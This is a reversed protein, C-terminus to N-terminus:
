PDMPTWIFMGGIEPRIGTVDAPRDYGVANRQPPFGTKQHGYLARGGPGGNEVRFSWRAPPHRRYLCHAGSGTPDPPHTSKM